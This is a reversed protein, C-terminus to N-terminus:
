RGRGVIRRLQGSEPGSSWPTLVHSYQRRRSAVNNGTWVKRTPSSSPIALRNAAKQATEAPTLPSPLANKPVKTSAGYDSAANEQSSPPEAPDSSPVPTIQAAKAAKVSVSRANAKTERLCPSSLTTDNDDGGDGGAAGGSRAKAASPRVTSPTSSPTPTRASPTKAFFGLISQQKGTSPAPKRVAARAPTRADAM